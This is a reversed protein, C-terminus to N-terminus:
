CSALISRIPAITELPDGFEVMFDLQDIAAKRTDPSALSAARSYAATAIIPSDYNILAEHLHLEAVTAAAYFDTPDEQQARKALFRSVTLVEHLEDQGGSDGPRNGELRLLMTLNVGMYYNPDAQFGTRYLEKMLELHGLGVAESGSTISRRARRKLLGAYLGYTEPDEPAIELAEKLHAEAQRWSADPDRGEEVMGEGLRRLALASKQLWILRLPSTTTPDALQLAQVADGYQGEGILGVGLELRLGQRAHEHIGVAAGVRALAVLMQEADSTRLSAQVEERLTTEREVQEAVKARRRLGGGARNDFWEHVPSDVKREELATRLLPRLKRIAAEAEEDSLEISRVLSAYRLPQIDFPAQVPRRNTLQPQVLVTASPAFAHRLGLEYAVNANGGTMDALVLDSNSLDEIMGVHIVGSVTELDARHWDVDLDELAPQYVRSFMPDCDYTRRNSPDFKKGYPMAVFGRPRVALPDIDLTLLGLGQAKAVLDDTVSPIKAGLGPRVTVVWVREGPAALAIARDLMATNHSQYVDNATPDLEGCDVKVAIDGVLNDYRQCWRAGRPEVSTSRFTNLDHPLVLHVDLGENRASEAILIDSGSAAAGVVLRPQLASLLSRVRSTVEDEASEPLRAPDTTPEDAQVGAYLVIM